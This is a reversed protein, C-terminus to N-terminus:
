DQNYQEMLRVGYAGFQKQFKEPNDALADNACQIAIGLLITTGPDDLRQMVQQLMRKYDNM